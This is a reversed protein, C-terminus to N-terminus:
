LVVGSDKLSAIDEWGYGLELLVEENHQGLEPAWSGVRGPTKSLEVALGCVKIDGRKPHQVTTVYGNDLLQPDDALEAPRRVPQWIFDYRNLRETWEELTHRLFKQKLIAFLTAGNATRTDHNNFRPDDRLEEAEMTQCFEQWLPDMRSNALQLWKGDSTRYCNYLASDSTEYSKGVINQATALSVDVSLSGLTVYSGLLSSHVLQGEGTHERHFLALMVGYALFIAGMYDGAAPPCQAPPTDPDVWISALGSRAFGTVEFAGRGRDPGRMGYGTGLAYVLRPNRACLTKHDLGLKELPSMRWNTLFVDSRDALKRAIERGREQRLDIALSRKGRHNQQFYCDFDEVPIGRITKSGRTPEGTAPDEMKIVDAGMEALFAGARPGYAWQTLELVKIGDLPMSM